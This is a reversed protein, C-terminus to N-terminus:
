EDDNSDWLSLWTTTLRELSRGRELHVNTDVKSGNKDLGMIFFKAATSSSRGAESCERLFKTIGEQDRKEKVM